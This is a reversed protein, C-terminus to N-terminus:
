KFMWKIQFYWWKWWSVYYVDEEVPFIQVFNGNVMMFKGSGDKYEGSWNLRDRVVCNVLKEGTFDSGPHWYIVVQSDPFVKYKTPNLPLLGKDTKSVSYVTVQNKFQDLCSISSLFLMILVIYSLAVGLKGFLSKM